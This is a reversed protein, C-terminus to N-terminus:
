DIQCILLTGAILYGDDAKFLSFKYGLNLSHIINVIQFYDQASHYISILLTPKFKKITNLAGEIFQQEFGELDTKILGVTIKHESVYQDLTIVNVSEMNKSNCTDSDPALTMGMGNGVLSKVSTTNGLAIQVPIIKSSKNLEITKKLLNYAVKSPEFGYISLVDPLQKEFVICSDGIYAGADIVSKGKLYDKNINDLGYNYIFTSVEFDNIPLFYNKYAYCNNSLKVISSYLKTHSNVINEVEKSTFINLKNSYRDNILFLRGLEKSLIEISKNDLLKIFEYYLVEININKSTKIFHSDWQCKQYYSINGYNNNYDFLPFRYGRKERLWKKIINFLRM